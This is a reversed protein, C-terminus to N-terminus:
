KRHHRLNRIPIIAAIAAVTMIFSGATSMVVFTFCLLLVINKDGMRGGKKQKQLLFSCLFLCGDRYGDPNIRHM